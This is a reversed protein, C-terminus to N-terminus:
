HAKPHPVAEYDAPTFRPTCIVLFILDGDGNNSISQVTGPAIPVSDGVTVDVQVGDLVMTGHGQEIIYTEAVSLRHAQTTLRPPLRCRAVSLDPKDASNLLETVFLGESIWVEHTNEAQIKM